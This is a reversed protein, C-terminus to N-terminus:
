QQADIYQEGQPAGHHHGAGNDNIHLVSTLLITRRRM